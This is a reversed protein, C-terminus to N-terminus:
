RTGTLGASSRMLYADLLEAAEDENGPMLHGYRDLTITVSSHGMYTALAKANVGAAIMLSAYTHRCEHLGIPELLDPARNESQAKETEMKNAKNWATRARRGVNSATFPRGRAPGFVYGDARGSRLRHEILLERLVSPVPVTRTGAKSKPATTHGRDDMSREVRIVGKAFDIDDWQLARLEGRRLGAYIATGWLAEDVPSLADLLRAAEEPSAIRDRMGRVAPLELGSMENVSVEGRSLARRYIVRLPMLVNRITSPDLGDALLGEAFDQVDVRRLESLNVGGFKPLIRNDLASRYSHIVSPKYTDGSKNRITGAEAGAIWAEAAERITV